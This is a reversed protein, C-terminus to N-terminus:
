PDEPDNQDCAGGSVRPVPELYSFINLVLKIIRWEYFIVKRIGFINFDPKGFFLSIQDIYIHLRNLRGIGIGCGAARESVVINRLERFQGRFALVKRSVARHEVASPYQRRRCKRHASYKGLRCSKWELDVDPLLEVVGPSRKVLHVRLFCEEPLHRRKSINQLILTVPINKHQSGIRCESSPTQIKALM